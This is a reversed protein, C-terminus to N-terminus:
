QNASYCERYLELHEQACKTWSFQRAREFGRVKLQERLASDTLLSEIGDAIRDSNEPDVLIAADGSIEPLSTTNSTVVPTGCAMAELVPFGFGEYMSCYLFVSAGNLLAVLDDDPIFGTVHIRDRSQAHALNALIRSTESSEPGVLVLQLDRFQRNLALKEFARVHGLVNKRPDLFGVTLVYPQDSVGYRHRADNVVTPELPRFISRVGPYVVSMKDAPLGAVRTLEEKTFESIAIIHEANQNAFELSLRTRKVFDKSYVEAFLIPIMDTLTIVHKAHPAKLIDWPWVHFVDLDGLLRNRMKQRDSVRRRMGKVARDWLATGPGLAIPLQDSAPLFELASIQRLIVHDTFVFPLHHEGDGSRDICVFETGEYTWELDLLGEILGLYLNQVGTRYKWFLGTVDFGIRMNADGTVM